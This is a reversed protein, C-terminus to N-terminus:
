GEAGKEKDLLSMADKMPSWGIVVTDLVIVTSAVPQPPIVFKNPRKELFPCINVLYETLMQKYGQRM